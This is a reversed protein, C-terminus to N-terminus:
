IMNVMRKIERPNMLVIRKREMEIFGEQKLNGLLTTVTQRSAGILRAIDEHTPVNNIVMSEEQASHDALSWLLHLLRTRVDKQLLNIIRFELRKMRQGMKRSFSISMGPKDQLLRELDQVTFACISVESKYAQAFEGMLNNNRDLTFQGFIDGEYIIDKILENGQEDITGLKVQGQKVFYIRNHFHADFYIYSGASVEMFNHSINLSQYEEETLQKLFDDRRILLLKEEIGM